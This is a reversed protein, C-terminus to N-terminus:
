DKVTRLHPHRLPSDLFAGEADMADFVPRMRERWQAALLRGLATNARRTRDAARVGGPHDLDTM